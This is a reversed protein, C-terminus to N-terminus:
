SLLGCDNTVADNLQHSQQNRLQLKIFRENKEEASLTNMHEHTKDGVLHDGHQGPQQTLLQATQIREDVSESERDNPFDCRLPLYSWKFNM